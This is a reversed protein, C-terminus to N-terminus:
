ITTIFVKDDWRLDICSINKMDGGSQSIVKNLVIIKNRIKSKNQNNLNDMLIINCDETNLSLLNSESLEILDLKSLLSKNTQELLNVLSLIDSSIDVDGYSSFEPIQSETILLDHNAYNEYIVEVGSELYIKRDDYFRPMNEKVIILKEDNSLSIIKLQEIITSYIDNNIKKGKFQNLVIEDPVIKNGYVLNSYSNTVKFNSFDLAIFGFISFLVVAYFINKIKIKNM